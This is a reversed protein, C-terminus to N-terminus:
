PHASIATKLYPQVRQLFLKLRRYDNATLLSFTATFRHLSAATLIGKKALQELLALLLDDISNIQDEYSFLSHLYQEQAFFNRLEDSSPVTVFAHINPPIPATHYRITGDEAYGLLACQFTSRIFEFIHPHDRKLEEETKKYAFVTRQADHSGMNMEYVIGYLTRKSSPIAVISGHEPLEDWNWCQAKWGQLSSEIVEAFSSSNIKSVSPGPQPRM